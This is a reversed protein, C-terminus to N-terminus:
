PMVLVRKLMVLECSLMVKKKLYLDLKSLILVRSLMM